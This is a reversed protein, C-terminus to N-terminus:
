GFIAAGGPTHNIFKDIDPRLQKAQKLPEIIENKIKLFIEPNEEAMKSLHPAKWTGTPKTLENKIADLVFVEDLSEKQIKEVDKARIGAITEQIDESLDPRATYIDGEKGYRKALNIMKEIEKDDFDDLGEKRGALIGNIAAKDRPNAAERERKLNDTTWDKYKKESEAFGAREQEEFERPTRAIQKTIFPLGTLRLPNYKGRGIFEGAKGMREGIKTKGILNAAAIKGRKIPLNALSKTMKMAGEAGYVGMKQAVILGGFLIGIISLFQIFMVPSLAVFITEQWSADVVFAFRQQIISSFSGADGAKVALYVFFMYIPAFFVWKLFTSWWQQFLHATGPIIWFFWALPALILLIWLTIMRIILFFAGFLLALAAALTLLIGFFISFIMMILGSTGAALKDGVDADPSMESLKPTNLIKAIQGSIGYQSAVEEYFFNTLIQSFDIITGAIVLSFNILLAAVILKWLIQKMGYTEIRLITAFAIALLILVFFMNALDRAITWGITVIGAATFGEIGFALELFMAALWFFLSVISHIIAGITAIFKAIVIFSADILTNAIKGGLGGEAITDKTSFVFVGLSSILAILCFSFIIRKYKLFKSM